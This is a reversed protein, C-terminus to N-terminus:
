AEIKHIKIFNTGGVLLNPLCGTIIVTDGHVLGIEKILFENLTKLAGTDIKPEFDLDLTYVGRYLKLARRIKSNPCCAFIPASLRGESLSIPTFGTGTLAIVAKVDMKKTMDAISMGIAMAQSNQEAEIMQRPFKDRSLFRSAEVEDAIKKMMGASEVPYNGMATEGSLMIADTGDLIANAVDSTEARTPIANEIMSELMQTAVIVAKRNQNAKRIITKQVIPVKETNIEIGLDGRAVMIGDSVDIIEDINEVAQPKEIKSIIRATSNKSALIERLKVVDGAERVFSLGLYDIENKVAFDVFELDRQTLVEISGTSGPINIGKRQKLLGDTQIEAYIIGNQVDTVELRIKGDDILIQEGICVDDAMGKYDVPIIGGSLEKQHRFKIVEGKKLEIPAPLSGIRIKPGQLDLLVPILTNEEKEIERIYSINQKHFNEDGHSSNIRFMTVGAHLLERIKEKTCSAPGLTAVIKTITYNQM